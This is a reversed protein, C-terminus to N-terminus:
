VALASFDHRAGKPSILADIENKVPLTLLWDIVEHVAAGKPFGITISKWETEETTEPDDTNTTLTFQTKSVLTFPLERFGGIRRVYEKGANGGSGGFTGRLLDDDPSLPELGLFDAHSKKMKVVIPEETPTGGSNRTVTIEDIKYLKRNSRATAM